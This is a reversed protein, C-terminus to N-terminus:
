FGILIRKVTGIQREVVSNTHSARPGNLKWEITTYRNSLFSEVKNENMESICRWLEELAFIFNSGMESRLFDIPGRCARFRRLANIFSDTSMSDAIDLHVGRSALSTYIVGYRKLDKRGEKIIYPEFCDLTARSFPTAPDMREEPLDGVETSRPSRLIMQM